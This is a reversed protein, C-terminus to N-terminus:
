ITFTRMLIMLVKVCGQHNTPTKTELTPHSLPITLLWQVIHLTRGEVALKFRSSGWDSAHM